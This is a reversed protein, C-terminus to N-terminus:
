LAALQEGVPSKAELSGSTTGRAAAASDCETLLRRRQDPLDIPQRLTRRTRPRLEVLAVARDLRLQPPYEREVLGIREDAPPNEQESVVVQRGQRDVADRAPEAGFRGDLVQADEVDVGLDHSEDPALEPARPKRDRSELV